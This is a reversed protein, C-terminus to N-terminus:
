ERMEPDLGLAGRGGDVPITAGTVFAADPSLLHAVVAAVETPAAVRGLPHLRAFEAQVAAAEQPSKAALYEEYRETAVSGPAVANVRIGHRGYDVALARTLGEVAAKATAYPLSGPVARAAQHSTINVVAGPRGVTLFHRVATACGILALDLNAAILARVEAIPSTHVSADRFVAANNVWGALPAAEEARAAARATIQEDAADGIVPVVRPGAWALAEADREVAVVTNQGDEGLLREVVAKGIGRGGGTVVYSFSM